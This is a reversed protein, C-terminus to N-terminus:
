RFPLLLRSARAPSRGFPESDWRAIRPNAILEQFVEGKDVLNALRRSGPEKRFESGANEGELAYLEEVRERVRDLTQEYLFNQLVVYGQRDLDEREAATM